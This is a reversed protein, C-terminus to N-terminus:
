RRPRHGAPWHDLASVSSILHTLHTLHGTTRGALVRAAMPHLGAALAEVFAAHDISRERIEPQPVPTTCAIARCTDM